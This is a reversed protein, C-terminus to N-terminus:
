KFIRYGCIDFVIDLDKSRIEICSWRKKSIRHTAMQETVFVKKGLIERSGIKRVPDYEVEGFLWNEQYGAYGHNKLDTLRWNMWKEHSKLHEKKSVEKSLNSIADWSFDACKKAVTDMYGDAKVITEEFLTTENTDVIRIVLGEKMPCSAEYGGIWKSSTFWRVFEDDCEQRIYVKGNEKCRFLDEGAGRQEGIFMVTRVNEM